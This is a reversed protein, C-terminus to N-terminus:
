TLSTKGSWTLRIRPPEGFRSFLAYRLADMSHNNRDEIADLFSERDRPDRKRRYTRLERITEKCHPSIYLKAWQQGSDGQIMLKDAVCFVGQEVRNDGKNINISADRRLTEISAPQSPDAIWKADPYRQKIERALDTWWGLVRNRQYHEEILWCQADAGHGTVGIVIFVGPDAYGWDVGVLVETFHAHREPVRIHFSETFLDYVLGEASDFDALWERRFISAPTTARADEVAKPDVTEPCDAHTAHFTSYSPYEDSLGLRHINYLLGHRGRRPTGGVVRMKLSHPESFWPVAVSHFVETDVDDCEDVLVADCRVGRGHKSNHDTAPFPQIWSGGPFTIRWRTKDLRGGLFSWTDSLEDEIHAAHVDKFHKLTDMLVVIRIGKTGGLTGKREMGDYKAVSMWMIHRMFWSKGCGRGWPLCVTRDPGIDQYAAWQPKNLRLNVDTM